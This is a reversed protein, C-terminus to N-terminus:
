IKLEEIAIEAGKPDFDPHKKCYAALLKHFDLYKKIEFHDNVGPTDSPIREPLRMVYHSGSETISCRMRYGLGRLKGAVRLALNREYTPFLIPALTPPLPIYAWGDPLDKPAGMPYTGKRRARTPLPVRDEIRHFFDGWMYEIPRAAPPLDPTLPDPPAGAWVRINRDKDRRTIAKIGKRALAQTLASAQSAAREGAHILVSTGVNMQSALGTWHQTRGTATSGAARPNSWLDFASFQGMPVQSPTQLVPRVDFDGILPRLADEPANVLRFGQGGSVNKAFRLLAEQTTYALQVSPIPRPLALMRREAERLGIPPRGPVLWSFHRTRFSVGGFPETGQAVGPQIWFRIYGPDVPDFAEMWLLGLRRMGARLNSVEQRPANADALALVLPGGSEFILRLVDQAYRPHSGVQNAPAAGLNPRAGSHSAIEAQLLRPPEAALPSQEAPSPPRSVAAPPAAPNVTAWTGDAQLVEYDADQTEPSESTWHPDAPPNRSTETAM